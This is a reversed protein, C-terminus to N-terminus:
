LESWGEKLVALLLPLVSPSCRRRLLWSQSLSVKSGPYKAVSERYEDLQGKGMFVAENM